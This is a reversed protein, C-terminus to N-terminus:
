RTPESDDDPPLMGAARARERAEHNLAANRENAVREGHASPKGITVRYLLAELTVAEGRRRLDAAADLWVRAAGVLDGETAERRHFSRLALQVAAIDRVTHRGKDFASGLAAELPSLTDDPASAPPEEIAPEPGAEPGQGAIYAVSTELATALARLEDEDLSQQKGSELRSVTSQSVVGRMREVLQAQSLKKAERRAKIRRGVVPVMTGSTHVAHMTM